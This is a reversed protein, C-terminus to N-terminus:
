QTVKLSRGVEEFIRLAFDLDELTHTASMITRIRAKDKAVVPYVIPLALIGKELLAESFQNALGSEGLMVPTIPTTSKGTDFGREKLGEKFYKTNKWLSQIIEPEEDVVEMAAICSAVTAPPISASLLHTRAKNFIYESLERGGTVYGGINGFAKSFTGMEIDVRGEMNFHSAIGRGNEGLVGDGHADDVYIIGGYKEAEKLIGPLPAIDGDMSFVGDTIILRRKFGKSEIEEMVRALDNTDRHKFVRREAKSLRVGDIISGHNLEDSIIVDGEGALQPISGANAAFGTPFHLSSETRKYETIKSDLQEHLRMNGIIIRVSGAGVGFKEIAEIARDKLKPHNTLGLYNNSCLILVEKGDVMARPVSATELVRSKWVLNQRGLVDLERRLFQDLKKMVNYM